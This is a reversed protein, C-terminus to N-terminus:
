TNVECKVLTIYEEGERDPIPVVAKYQSMIKEVKYFVNKLL